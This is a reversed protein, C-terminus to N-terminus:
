SLQLIIKICKGQYTCILNDITFAKNQMIFLALFSGTNNLKQKLFNLKNSSPKPPIINFFPFSLVQQFRLM